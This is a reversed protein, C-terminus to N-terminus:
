FPKEEKKFQRANKLKKGKVNFLKNNKTPPTRGKKIKKEILKKVKKEIREKEVAKKVRIPREGIKFGNMEKIAKKM